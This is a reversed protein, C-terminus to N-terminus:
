GLGVLLRVAIASRRASRESFGSDRLSANAFPASEVFAQVVFEVAAIKTQGVPKASHDVLNQRSRRAGKRQANEGHFEQQQNKADRVLM